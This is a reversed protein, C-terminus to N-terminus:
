EDARTFKMVGHSGGFPDAGIPEGTPDVALLSGSTLARTKGGYFETSIVDSPGYPPLGNPVVDGDIRLVLSEDPETTQM